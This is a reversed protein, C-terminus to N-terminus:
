KFGGLPGVSQLFIALIHTNLKSKAVPRRKNYDTVALIIITFIIIFIYLFKKKVPQPLFPIKM